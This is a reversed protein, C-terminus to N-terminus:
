TKETQNMLLSRLNQLSTSNKGDPFEATCTLAKDNDDMSAIFMVSSVTTWATPSTRVTTSSAHMDKYNWTLIPRKKSCIHSVSCTINEVVGELFQEPTPGISIEGAPCEPYIALGAEAQQGGPHKVRCTVTQHDEEIVWTQVLTTKWKGDQVETETAKGTGPLGVLSLTPPAAPCSHYATCQVSITEGVRTINSIVIEPKDVRDTVHLQVTKDQYNQRHYSSIPKPDVWTYLRLGSHKDELPSIKLSCNRDRASGYLSTKGRFIPIVDGPHHDDYVVPYQGPEYKYWKVRVDSPLSTSYEFRCPIVLCSGRLGTIYGPMLFSWGLSFMGRKVQLIITGTQTQGSPFRATCTLSRGHDNAGAKFTLISQTRWSGTGLKTPGSSETRMNGYSWTLSPHDKPCTYSVSCTVRKEVGELFEESTPSLTVPMFSCAAKVDTYASAKQGGPHQVTCSMPQHENEVTWSQELTIKWRDNETTNIIKSTGLQPSLTLTPLRDPCRHYTSCKVTIREGFKVPGTVKIQPPIAKGRVTIKATEDYFPFYRYTVYDPDVWPYIKQRSHDWRLPNIKLSCDGANPDGYLSTTWRFLKIVDNQNKRDYVLPYGSRAYQYWVVRSKDNPPYDTYSFRCPIVLCSGEMGEIERPVTVSWAGLVALIVGQLCLGSLCLQAFRDMM